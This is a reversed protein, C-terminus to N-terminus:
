FFLMKVWHTEFMFQKVYKCVYDIDLNELVPREYGEIDMKWVDIVQNRTGTLDYIQEITKLNDTKTEASSNPAVAKLGVRYFHWKDNVALVDREGLGPTNRRKDGFRQTEVNPDFSHVRCGFKENMEADFSEDTSIGFSLVTCHNFSPRVGEDMCVFWAGDIRFLEDKAAQVHGTMGGVRRKRACEYRKLDRTFSYNQEHKESKISEIQGGSSSTFIIYIQVLLVTLLLLKLLKSRIM